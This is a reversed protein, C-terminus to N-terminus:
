AKPALGMVLYRQLSSGQPELIAMEPKVYNITVLSGEIHKLADILLRSRFLLTEEGDASGDEMAVHDAVSGMENESSVTIAGDSHKLAVVCEGLDAVVSAREVASLLETRNVILTAKHKKPLKGYMPPWTGDLLNCVLVVSEADFIAVGRDQGIGLLDDDGLDLRLLERVADSPVTFEADDVGAVMGPLSYFAARHGGGDITEVRLDGGTLVFRVGCLEPRAEAQSAAHAVTALARRLPGWVVGCAGDVEPLAPFDAADARLAVSYRGEGAEVRLQDTEPDVVLRVAEGAPLRGVLAALLRHPVAVSGGAAVVAPQSARVGISLDYGVASLGQAAEQATLLVSSLVPLNPRSSVARGAARLLSELAEQPLTADFPM